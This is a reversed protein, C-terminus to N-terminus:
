ALSLRAMIRAALWLAAILFLCSAALWIVGRYYWDMGPEKLTEIHSDPGCIKYRAYTKYLKDLEQLDIHEASEWSDATINEDMAPLRIGVKRLRQEQGIPTNLICYFRQLLLDSESNTWKSVIYMLFTAVTAPALATIEFSYTNWAVTWYSLNTGPSTQQLWNLSQCIVYVFIGALMAAWAGHRNAKRWIVGFYLPIGLIILIPALFKILDQLNDFMLAMGGSLLVVAIGMWRSCLLYFRTSRGPLLRRRLLFDVIVGASTASMTDVSSMLAAFFSAILLGLLGPPLLEKIVIGWALEPDHLDPKHILFLLGYIVFVITIVRKWLHGWGCQTATREDKGVSILCFIFPSAVSGFTTVVVLAFIQSIPLADSHLSWYEQPLGRLGEFGGAERWLFPLLLFCFTTLAMLGQFLDTLLSAMLGGAGVYAAVMICSILVAHHVELGTLGTISKGGALAFLGVTGVSVIMSIVAYLTAVNPGFRMEYFEASNFVRSRKYIPAFLFYLIICFLGAWWYWIGSLGSEYAAGAIVVAEAGGVASAFVFIFAVIPGWKGGAIFFDALTKTQHKGIVVGLVTVTTFYVVLVVIDLLHLDIAHPLSFM